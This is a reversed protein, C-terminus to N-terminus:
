KVWFHFSNQKLFLPISFIRFSICTVQLSFCTRSKLLDVLGTMGNPGLANDSCDLVALNAGATIMGNGLSRLAQPIETKLRGTFLDKWLAQKFEPHKTLAEAIGNAADVGLTNGELNLYDLTKCKNIADILDKAAFDVFCKTRNWLLFFHKIEMGETATGWNKAQGVFSVGSLKTESLANAFDSFNFGSM